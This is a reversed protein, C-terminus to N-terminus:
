RITTKVLSECWQRLDWNRYKIDATILHVGQDANNPIKVKFIKESESLPGATIDAEAQYAEYGDPLNLKVTFIEENYSHNFVKVAVEIIDGPTVNQEYPYFRAWQEDLGYNINDWPFLERLIQVREELITTLETLQKKSFSFLPDVHQNALLVDGSLENLIDLCYFYGTGPNLFNRNLLCYDDIGSPTFSDGAFFVSEGNNKEALLAGHYLTQGPFFRFTLTYEKWPMKEGEEMVAFGEIPENFLAPMNYASPNELIDKLESIIYVPCNFEKVAENIFSVHDFHYHTIFIGDLSKMRGSKKMQILKDLAGKSGCDMIFASSDKSFVLWVTNFRMCWDPLDNRIVSSYPFIDVKGSKGLMYETLEETREPYYWRYATVSLYNSYLSQIREMLKKVSSLETIVPGRVPIIIDPNEELVLQLSRYLQGLRTAYGHYGSIDSFSDQFSYLDIIKGDGYILDGTFAFKKGDANIFYSVSGRTFGPTDLVKIETGKWKIIEGDEAFLSVRLPKIGFKTTQNKMNTFRSKSYDEWISDGRTFFAREKFPVVAKAGREVLSRGAWVADRRFHTFLVMDANNLENNPDGYVVLRAGDREIVAGNVAGRSIFVSESIQRSFVPNIIVVSIFLILLPLTTMNKM